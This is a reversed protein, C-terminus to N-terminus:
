SAPSATARSRRPQMMFASTSTAVLRDESDQWAQARVFAIHRTLRYCEAQVFIAKDRLAPRLYDMRLDLTAVTAPNAASAIVAIGCASDIMSTIVGTHILGREADGLLEERFDLALRALGLGVELIRIGLDDAHPVHRRFNDAILQHSAKMTPRLDM